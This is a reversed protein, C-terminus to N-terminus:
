PPCTPCTSPPRVVPHLAHRRSICFRSATATILTATCLRQSLCVEQQREEPRPAVSEVSKALEEAVLYSDYSIEDTVERAVPMFDPITVSSEM